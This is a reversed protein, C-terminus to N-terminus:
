RDMGGQMECLMGLMRKLEPQYETTLLSQGNGESSRM